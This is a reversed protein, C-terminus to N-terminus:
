VWLVEFGIALVILARRSGVFVGSFEGHEVSGSAIEADVGPEAVIDLFDVSVRELLELGFAEEPVNLVRGLHAYHAVLAKNTDLRVQFLIRSAWHFHVYGFCCLFYRILKLFIMSIFM